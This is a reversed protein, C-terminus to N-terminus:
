LGFYNIHNENCVYWHHRSSLARIYQRHFFKAHGDAFANNNGVQHRYEPEEGTSVPSDIPGPWNWMNVSNSLEIGFYSPAYPASESFFIYEAPAEFAAMPTATRGTSSHPFGLPTTDGPGKGGYTFNYGYGMRQIPWGAGFSLGPFNETRNGEEWVRDPRSPCTYMMRSKIYPQIVNAWGTKPWGQYFLPYVEDYDQVYMVLALGLQKQNSLCSAARAKDRAQAFVPFLIAALIAIIAIVVLLEILTFGRRTRM